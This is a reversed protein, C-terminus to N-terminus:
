SQDMMFIMPLMEFHLILKETKEKPLVNDYIEIFNKM